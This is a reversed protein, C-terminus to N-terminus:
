EVDQRKSKSDVEAIRSQGPSDGRILADEEKREGTPEEEKHDRWKV